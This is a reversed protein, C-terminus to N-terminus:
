TAPNVNRGRHEAVQPVVDPEVAGLQDLLGATSAGVVPNGSLSSTSSGCDAEIAGPASPPRRRGTSVSLGRCRRRSNMQPASPKSGAAKHSFWRPNGIIGPVQCDINLSALSRQWRCSTPSRAHVDLGVSTGQVIM